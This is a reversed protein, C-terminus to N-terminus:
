SEQQIKLREANCDCGRLPFATLEEEEGRAGRANTKLPPRHFASYTSAREDSSALQGMQAFDM